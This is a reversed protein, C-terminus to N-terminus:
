GAAALHCAGPLCTASSSWPIKMASWYRRSRSAWSQELQALGVKVVVVGHKARGLDHDPLLWARRAHHWASTAGAGERLAQQVYPRFGLNEGVFSDARRWNSAALVHGEHDLMYVSLHGRPEAGGSLPQRSIAPKTARRNCCRCSRPSCPWVDPLFAFKDIERRLSAAYLDLRNNGAAVVTELGIKVFGSLGALRGPQKCGALAPDAFCCAPAPLFALM